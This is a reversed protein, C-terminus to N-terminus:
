APNKKYHPIELGKRWGGLMKGIEDLRIAIEEYQKHSIFKAEWALSILFKLIDLTFISDSVKEIKRDKSSFYATYTFELFDLFKNEIRTGITYRARKPIHPVLNM